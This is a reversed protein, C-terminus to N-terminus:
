DGSAGFDDKAPAVVLPLPRNAIEDAEVRPLGLTLLLSAAAREALCDVTYEPREPIIPMSNDTRGFRLEAAISALVTGGVTLVCRLPDDAILRGCQVGKQIDRLLRPGLGRSLARASLGERILFHGWQSERGARILTHRVCVAIVEAPDTLDATLRDLTDAFEEFVWDTLAAHIAEPTGRPIRRGRTRRSAM